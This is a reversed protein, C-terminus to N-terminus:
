AGERDQIRHKVNLISDDSEVELTLNRGTLTRIFIQMKLNTYIIFIVEFKWFEEREKQRRM